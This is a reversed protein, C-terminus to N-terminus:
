AVGCACRRRAATYYVPGGKEDSFEWFAVPEKRFHNATIYAIYELAREILKPRVDHKDWPDGLAQMSKLVEGIVGLAIMRPGHVRGIPPTKAYNFVFASAAIAACCKFFMASGKDFVGQDNMWMGYQMFANSGFLMSFDAEDPGLSRNRPEDDPLNTEISATFPISGHNKKLKEVLSVYLTDCYHSLDHILDDPVRNMIFFSCWVGLARTDGWGWARQESAPRFSGTLPNINACLGPFHKGPNAAHWQTRLSIFFELNKRHFDRYYALLNKCTDTTLEPKKLIM